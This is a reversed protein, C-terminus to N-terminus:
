LIIAVDFIIQRPGTSLRGRMGKGCPAKKAGTERKNGNRWHADFISRTRQRAFRVIICDARGM